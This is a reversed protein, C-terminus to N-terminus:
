KGNKAEYNEFCDLHDLEKKDVNVWIVAGRPHSYPVPNTFKKVKDLVWAYPYRGLINADNIRHCQYYDSYQISAEVRFCSSLHAAGVVFGSGAEILGIQGRINTNRSRMEWEKNGGLILDIWPKRIILCKM